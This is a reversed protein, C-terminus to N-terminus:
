FGARDILPKPILNVVPLGRPIQHTPWHYETQNKNPHREKPHNPLLPLRFLGRLLTTNKAARAEHASRLEIASFMGVADTEGGEFGECSSLSEKAM